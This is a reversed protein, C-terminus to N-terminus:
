LVKDAAEHSRRAQECHGHAKVRPLHTNFHLLQLDRVTDMLSVVDFCHSSAAQFLQNLDLAPLGSLRAPKRFQTVHNAITIPMLLFAKAQYKKEDVIEIVMTRTVSVNVNM